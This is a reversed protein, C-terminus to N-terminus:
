EEDYEKKFSIGEESVETVTLKVSVRNPGTFCVGGPELGDWYLVAGESVRESFIQYDGSDPDRVAVTMFFSDNEKKIERLEIQVSYVAERPLFDMDDGVEYRWDENEFEDAEDHEEYENYEEDESYINLSFNWLGANELMENVISMLDASETWGREKYTEESPCWLTVSTSGSGASLEITFTYGDLGVLEQNELLVKNFNIQSIEDWFRSFIGKDFKVSKETDDLLVATKEGEMYSFTLENAYNDEPNRMWSDASTKLSISKM